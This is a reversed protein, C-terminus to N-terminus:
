WRLSYTWLPGETSRFVLVIHAGPPSRQAEGHVDVFPVRGLTIVEDATEIDLVRSADLSAPLCVAAVRGKRARAWSRARDLFASVGPFPEFEDPNLGAKRLTKAPTGKAGFPPNMWVSSVDPWPNSLCSREATFWEPAHAAGDEACADLDFFGIRLHTAVADVLEPPTRWRMSQLVCYGEESTLFDGALSNNAHNM